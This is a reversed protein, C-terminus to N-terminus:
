PSPHPGRDNGAVGRRLLARAAEDGDLVRNVRHEVQWGEATRVLEWRTATVRWVRFNEGDARCLQAYATAVARDGDIVLYPMMTVHASGGRMIGQHMDGHVMDAIAGRGSWAGVQADYVGDVTWRSAALDAEGADVAPGYGMMLQYIAVHDELLRVRAELADLRAVVAEAADSM